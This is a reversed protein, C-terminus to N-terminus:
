KNEKDIDEWSIVRRFRIQVVILEITFPLLIGAAIGLLPPQLASFIALVANVGFLLSAWLNSRKKNHKRIAIRITEFVLGIGIGFLFWCTHHSPDKIIWGVVLCALLLLFTWSISKQITTLM